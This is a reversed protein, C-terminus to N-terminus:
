PEVSIAGTPCCAVASEVAELMDPAVEEELIELVGSDDLAFHAPAISTCMGTAACRTRDIAIRVDGGGHGCRIM